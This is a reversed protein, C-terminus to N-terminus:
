EPIQRGIFRQVAVYTTVHLISYAIGFGGRFENYTTDAPNFPSIPLNGAGLALPSVFSILLAALSIGAWRKRAGSTTFRSAVIAAAATAGVSAFMVGGFFTSEGLGPVLGILSAAIWLAANVSVAVAASKLFARPM